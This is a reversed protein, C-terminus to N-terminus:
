RAVVISGSYTTGDVDLRYFYIGGRVKKGGPGRGDWELSDAVSGTALDSVESGSLDYVKALSIVSDAPNDYVIRFRDNIGDGNPTFVKDPAKSVINFSQARAQGGACALALGAAMLVRCLTRRSM